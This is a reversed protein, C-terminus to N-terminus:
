EGGIISISPLQDGHLRESLEDRRLMARELASTALPLSVTMLREHEDALQLLDAAQFEAAQKKLLLLHTEMEVADISLTSLEGNLSALLDGGFSRAAERRDQALQVRALALEERAQNVDHESALSREAMSMVSQLQKERLGIITQMEHEIILSQKDQSGRQGIRAIEEQIARRRARGAELEMELARSRAQFERLESQIVDRSLDRSGAKESLARLKVHIASLAKEAKDLEKQAYARQLDIRRMQEKGLQQLVTTLRKVTEAVIRDAQEATAGDGAVRVKLDCIFTSSEDGLRGASQVSQLFTVKFPSDDSGALLTLLGVGRTENPKSKASRELVAATVNRALGTTRLLSHLSTQDIPMVAPDCSIRLLAGSEVYGDPLSAVRSEATSSAALFTSMLMLALCSSHIM